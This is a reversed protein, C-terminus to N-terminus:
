EGGKKKNYVKIRILGPDANGQFKAGGNRLRILWAVTDARVTEGPYLLPIGPPYPVIMEAAARGTSYELPVSETESETSPKLSFAVPESIKGEAHNNWTSLAIEPQTGAAPKDAPAEGAIQRLAELLLASDEAKSGLSFALVVHRDDSMEPVIGKEELRRQLEFGGLVGAADCIVAKFPDQATYAAPRPPPAPDAAARAGGSSQQRAAPQLLRFRPLEALGRQLADVAALGATFAEAGETHVLRRALDLSAMLPYSPSSSQVMALRQRLLARDLRPGQVHLMAGMTLAPLMKHTSQVVGDAGAALAGAPLAPHLGYHAGHAEDVLLVAGAAHCLEAVASIDCGMGYYNPLTLLVAAAQPYAALAAGITEPAPVVALGSGEDLLPELFVARAGALMLGHIVSKHVNRQVLILDGPIKCVTLILALNGATSGGVLFYSEEAGFCDAALEQAEKIVGEPHHLDDTGTIETVDHRMVEGLFGADRPERYAQGNKHGPVHYTINGQTRYQELMEYLPARMPQLNNM